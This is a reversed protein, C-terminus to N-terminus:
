LQWPKVKAKRNSQSNSIRVRNGNEAILNNVAPRITRMVAYANDVNGIKIMEILNEIKQTIENEVVDPMLAVFDVGNVIVYKNIVTCKQLSALSPSDPVSAPSPSTIVDKYSLIEVDESIYQDNNELNYARIFPVNLLALGTGVTSSAVKKYSAGRFLSRPMSALIEEKLSYPM